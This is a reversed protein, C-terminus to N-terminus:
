SLPRAATVPAAPSHPTHSDSEFQPLRRARYRCNAPRHASRLGRISARLAPSPEEGWAEWLRSEVSRYASMAERCRGLARNLRIVALQLEESDPCAAASLLAQELASERDNDDTLERVLEMALLAYRSAL